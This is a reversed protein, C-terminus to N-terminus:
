DGSQGAARDLREIEALLLAAARVYNRRPDRPKFWGEFWPWVRLGQLATLEPYAYAAAAHPLQNCSYTDDLALTRGEQEVQRLREAMVDRVADAYPQKLETTVIREPMAEIARMRKNNREVDAASVPEVPLFPTSLHVYAFTVMVEALSQRAQYPMATNDELLGAFKAQLEANRAVVDRLTNNTNM